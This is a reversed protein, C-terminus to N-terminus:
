DIAAASEVGIGGQSGPVSPPNGLATPKAGLERLKAVFAGFNPDQNTRLGIRLTALNINRNFRFPTTISGPDKEDSGHIANFVMAADEATRTLPGVRDMSWALVM